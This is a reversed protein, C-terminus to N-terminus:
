PPVLPGAVRVLQSALAGSILAGRVLCEGTFAVHVLGRLWAVSM